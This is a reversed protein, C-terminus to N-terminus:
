NPDLPLNELVADASPECLDLRLEMRSKEFPLSREPKPERKQPRKELDVRSSPSGMEM